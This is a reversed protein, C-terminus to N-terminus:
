SNKKDMRSIRNQRCRFPSSSFPPSFFNKMRNCPRMDPFSHPPFPIFNFFPGGGVGKRSLAGSQRWFSGIENRSSLPPLSFNKTSVESQLFSGNKDDRFPVFNFHKWSMKPWKASFSWQAINAFLKKGKSPLSFNAWRINWVERKQSNGHPWCMRSIVFHCKEKSVFHLLYRPPLQIHPSFSMGVEHFAVRTM